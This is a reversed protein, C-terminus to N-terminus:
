FYVTLSGSFGDLETRRILVGPNLLVAASPPSLCTFSMMSQNFFSHASFELRHSNIIVYVWYILGFALSTPIKNRHSIVWALSASFGPGSVISGRWMFVGRTDKDYGGFPRIWTTCLLGLEVCGPFHLKRSDKIKFERGHIAKQVRGSCDLHMCPLVVPHVLARLIM